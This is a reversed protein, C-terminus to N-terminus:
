KKRSKEVALLRDLEAAILAGAKILDRIRGNPYEQQSPKFKEPAFPWMLGPESENGIILPNLRKKWYGRMAYIIAADTLESCVYQSDQKETYGEVDIQRQRENAILECGKTM